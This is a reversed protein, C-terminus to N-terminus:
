PKNRAATRREYSQILAHHTNIFWIGVPILLCSALSLPLDLLWYIISQVGAWNATPYAFNNWTWLHGVTLPMWVATRLWHYTQYGLILVPSLILIAGFLHIYGDGNSSTRQAM